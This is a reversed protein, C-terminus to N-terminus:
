PQQPYKALIESARDRIHPSAANEKISKLRERYDERERELAEVKSRLAATNEKQRDHIAGAFDGAANIAERVGAKKDEKMKELEERLATNEARFKDICTQQDDAVDVYMQTVENTKAVIFKALRITSPQRIIHNITENTDPPLSAIRIEAIVQKWYEEPVEGQDKPQDNWKVWEPNLYEAKESHSMEQWQQQDPANIYKAPERAPSVPASIRSCKLCLEECKEGGDYDSQCFFYEDEDRDAKKEQEIPAPSPLLAPKCREWAEKLNGDAIDDVYSAPPDPRNFYGLVFARQVLGDNLHKQEDIRRRIEKAEWDHDDKEEEKSHSTSLIGTKGPQGGTSSDKASRDSTQGDGRESKLAEKALHMIQKLVEKHDGNFKRGDTTFEWKLIDVLAKKEEGEISSPSESLWELRAFENEPIDYDGDHHFVRFAKGFPLDYFNGNVKRGNLRTHNLPSDWSQEITVKAQACYMPGYDSDPGELELHFVKTFTKSTM